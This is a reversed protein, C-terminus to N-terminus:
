RVYRFSEIEWDTKNSLEDALEQTVTMGELSGYLRDRRNNEWTYYIFLCIYFFSAFAYGAICAKLGTQNFVTLWRV